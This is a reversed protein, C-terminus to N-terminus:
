LKRRARDLIGNIEYLSDLVAAGYDTLTLRTSNGDVKREVLGKPQLRKWANTFYKSNWGTHQELTALNPEGEIEQNVEGIYMIARIEHRTLFPIDDEM